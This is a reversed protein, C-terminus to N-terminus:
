LSMLRLAEKDKTPNGFDFYSLRNPRGGQAVDPDRRLEIDL